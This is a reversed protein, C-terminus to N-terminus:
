IKWYRFIWMSNQVTGFKETSFLGHVLFDQLFKETNDQVPNDQVLDNTGFQGQGLYDLALNDLYFFQGLEFNELLM